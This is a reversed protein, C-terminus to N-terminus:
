TRLAKLETRLTDLQVPSALPLLRASLSTLVQQDAPTKKLKLKYFRRILDMLVDAEAIQKTAFTEADPACTGYEWLWRGNPSYLYTALLGNEEPVECFRQGSDDPNKRIVIGLKQMCASIAMPEGALTFKEKLQRVPAAIAPVMAQAQAAAEAVLQNYADRDQEFLKIRAKHYDAINGSKTKCGQGPNTSCQTCTFDLPTFQYQTM